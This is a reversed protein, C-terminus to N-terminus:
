EKGRHKLAGAEALYSAMEQAVAKGSMKWGWLEYNLKGPMPPHTFDYDAVPRFQEIEPRFSEVTLRQSKYIGFLGIKRRLEEGEVSLETEKGTRSPFTQIAPQGESNRHYLPSEWVPVGLRRGAQSSAFCVADHDPHGGEFALTLISDPRYEAVIKELAAIAQPLRQFLEQDAIGGEVEEALFVPTGSFLSVAEIAERRRVDAYAQRSGYEKWFYEDRPAGDTAFVVIAKQMRQMLAGATLLEDDPHAVVVLTTGLLPRLAEEHHTRLARNMRLVQNMQIISVQCATM